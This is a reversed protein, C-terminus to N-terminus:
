RNKGAREAAIIGDCVADFLARKEQNLDRRCVGFCGGDPNDRLVQSVAFRRLQAADFHRLQVFCIGRGALILDKVQESGDCMYSTRYLPMDETLVHQVKPIKIWTEGDLDKVSRAKAIHAFKRKLGVVAMPDEALRRSAVNGEPKHSWTVFGFDLKGELVSQYVFLSRIAYLHFPPIASKMRDLCPLVMKRGMYGAAGIKVATQRTGSLVARLSDSIESRHQMLIDFLATGQATLLLGRKTRQFLTVGLADEFKKLSISLASQTLGIKRAASSVKGDKAAALFHEVGGSFLSNM